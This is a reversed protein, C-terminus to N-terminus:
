SKPPRLRGHAPKPVNRGYHDTAIEGKYRNKIKTNTLNDTDYGITLVMQNTVLRKEVLNLALMDTMERVILKAKECNYPCKLVQGSSISNTEPKYSKILEITTPEFGWAHDILLEANVGFMNYLLEENYYDNDKGLSITLSKQLM